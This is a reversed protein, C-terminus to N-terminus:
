TEVRWNMNERCNACRSAVAPHPLRLSKARWTATSPSTEFFLSRGSPTIPIQYDGDAVPNSYDSLQARLSLASAGIKMLASQLDFREPSSNFKLTMAHPLSAYQAYRLSGPNYSVNGEYNKSLAAFRIDTELDYLDAEVPIKQDNYGIEGRTIQAHQVGLDFVSTHSSSQSPPTAPLNNKGEKSVQLHIVPHDILLERLAVQHHLASLIKVRVTLKDAHLLPPQEPGESGRLTINYLHATLTSLNFDLGGIETRGGTALDAQEVIKHLAYQQFNSSHLYLYGVVAAVLLLTLLGALAWGITRKWKM